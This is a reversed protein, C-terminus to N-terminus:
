LLKIKIIIGEPLRKLLGSGDLIKNRIEPFDRKLIVKEGKYESLIEEILYMVGNIKREGLDCYDEIPIEEITEIEDQINKNTIFVEYLDDKIKIKM